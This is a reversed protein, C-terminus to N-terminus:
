VGIHKMVEWVPRKRADPPGSLLAVFWPDELNPIQRRPQGWVGCLLLMYDMYILRHTYPHLSKGLCSPCNGQKSLYIM